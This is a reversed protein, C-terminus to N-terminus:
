VSAIWQAFLMVLPLTATSLVSTLGVTQSAYGPEVNHVEAFMTVSAASPLGVMATILLIYTEGLGCLRALLAAALPFVILKIFSHLYLKASCLMKPLSITALLAGTILVSIPTCLNGLYNFTKGFFDPLVFGIGKLLYLVLGIMCPVTGFNLIAKKPTMRIDDRNRALIAIGWTWLFLHYGIVYFAGMFSGRGDGLISDLIPFGLFGCNAFVLSCEFIKNEDSKKMPKCILYSVAAMLLHVVLSILTVQWAVTLNERSFDANALAAIIMMPQGVTLILRSLNKSSVADIIGAKRSIYGCIMLLLLTLIMTLLSYFNMM